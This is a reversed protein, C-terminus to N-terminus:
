WSFRLTGTGAYSQMHGGFEGDFKAALAVGRHLAIQAAASVLATDADPAAGDVVFSAGPLTQFSATLSRETHFNHAWAARARLTVATDTPPWLFRYDSGLGLESRSATIRQRNYSLAFNGSGATANESYARLYFQQVQAATYPTIGFSAAGFRYGAEFRGGFVQPHFDGELVDSGSVNVTRTTRVRHWAYALAASIYAPGIRHLGHAGAQFFDSRGSGFGDSLSWRTDGGALAFGLVTDSSLRYDAGAAIGATTTHTGHSGMVADGNVHAGGGFGAGWASWRQAFTMPAAKVPMAKAYARAVDPPLPSRSAPEGAFALAPGGAAGAAGATAVLPDLM